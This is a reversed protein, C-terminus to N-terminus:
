EDSMATSIAFSSITVTGGSVFGTEDFVLDASSEGVSGDFLAVEDKDVVRFWGATGSAAATASIAGGALGASANSDAAGFAPDAFDLTALLSGSATTQPTAPQSGTYILLKGNANTSGVDVSDVIADTSKKRPSNTGNGLRFAM